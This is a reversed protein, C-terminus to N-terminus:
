GKEELSLARVCGLAELVLEKMDKTIPIEDLLKTDAWVGVFHEDENVIFDAGDGETSAIYSLQM